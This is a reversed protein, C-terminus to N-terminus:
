LPIRGNTRIRLWTLGHWVVTDQKVLIWNLILTVDGWVANEM